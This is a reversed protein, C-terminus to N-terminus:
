EPVLGRPRSTPSVSARSGSRPASARTTSAANASPMPSFGAAKCGRRRLAEQWRHPRRVLRRSLGGTDGYCLRFPVGARELRKRMVYSIEPNM